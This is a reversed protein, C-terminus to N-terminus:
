LPDNQLPGRSPIRKLPDGQVLRRSLTGHRHNQTLTENLHDAPLPGRSPNGKFDWVYNLSKLNARTIAM